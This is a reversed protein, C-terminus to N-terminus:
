IASSARCGTPSHNSCPLRKSPTLVPSLLMNVAGQSLGLGAARPAPPPGRLHHQSPPEPHRPAGPSRCPGPVSLRSGSRSTTPASAARATSTPGVSRSRDASTWLSLDNAGVGGVGDLDFASVTPRAILENLPGAFIRGGNLLTSPPQGNGRGVLTFRVSGNADTLKSVRKGPIVVTVLPDHPDAALVLEPVGQLDIAVAVGPVPLGPLDRLVVEFEGFAAAPVGQALGVLRICAPATSNPYNLPPLAHSTHAVLVAFTALAAISRRM